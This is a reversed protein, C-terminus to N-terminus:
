VSASQGEVESFDSEDAFNEEEEEGGDRFVEERLRDKWSGTKRTSNERRCVEAGTEDEREEEKERRFGRQLDGRRGIDERVSEIDLPVGEAGALGKKGEEEATSTLLSAMSKRVTGADKRPKRDEGTKPPKRRRRRMGGEGGHAQQQHQRLKKRSAYKKGCGEERCEHRLMQHIVREHNKM